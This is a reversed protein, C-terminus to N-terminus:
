WRSCALLRAEAMEGRLFRSRRSSSVCRSSKGRDRSSKRLDTILRSFRCSDEMTVSNLMRPSVSDPRLGSEFILRIETSGAITRSWRAYRGDVLRNRERRVTPAFAPDFSLESHGRDNRSDDSNGHADAQCAVTAHGVSQRMGGSIFAKRM